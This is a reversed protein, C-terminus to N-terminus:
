TTRCRGPRKARRRAAGPVQRPQHVIEAQAGGADARVLREVPRGDQFHARVIEPVDAPKVGSYWVGDPYVVLNPGRECLGLSGCTTLQVDDILGRAGIERRLAEIVAASGRACCCPVGEPKQQDCVFVHYPVAGHNGGSPPLECTAARPHRTEPTLLFKCGALQKSTCQGM